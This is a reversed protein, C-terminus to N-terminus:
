KQITVDALGRGVIYIMLGQMIPEAQAPDIVTPSLCAVLIIAVLAQSKRSSLTDTLLKM